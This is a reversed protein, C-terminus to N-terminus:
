FKKHTTVYRFRKVDFDVACIITAFEGPEAPSIVYVEWIQRGVTKQCLRNGKRDLVILDARLSRSSSSDKRRIRRNENIALILEPSGDGDLDAASVRFDYELDSKKKEGQGVWIPSGDPGYLGVTNPSGAMSVILRLGESTEVPELDRILGWTGGRPFRITRPEKESGGLVALGADNLRLCVEDVGDGDVDVRLGRGYVESIRGEVRGRDVLAAPAVEEMFAGRLPAPGEEPDEGKPGEAPVWGFRRLIHDGNCIIAAQTGSGKGPIVDFFRNSEGVRKQCIRRGDGDFVAVYAVGRGGPFTDGNDKPPWISLAVVFETQGDGNLDAASVLVNSWRCEPTELEFTWVEEGTAKFLGVARKPSELGVLWYYDKGLRVPLYAGLEDGLRWDGLPVQETLGTKGDIVFIRGEPDRRVLEQRGDGNLDLFSPDYTRRRRWPTRLEQFREPSLEEMEFTVQAPKSNQGSQSSAGYLDLRPEPASEEPSKEKGPPPEQSFALVPVSLILGLLLTSYSRHVRM